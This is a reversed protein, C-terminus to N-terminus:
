RLDREVAGAGSKTLVTGDEVGSLSFPMATADGSPISRDSDLDVGDAYALLVM